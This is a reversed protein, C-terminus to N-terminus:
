HADSMQHDHSTSIDLKEAFMFAVTGLRVNFRISVVSPELDLM